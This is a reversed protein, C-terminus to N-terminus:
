PNFLNNLSRITLADSLNNQIKGIIPASNSDTYDSCIGKTSYIIQAM